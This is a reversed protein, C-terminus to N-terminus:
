LCMMRDRASSRSNFNDRSTNAVIDNYANAPNLPLIPNDPDFGNFSAAIFIGHNGGDAFEDNGSVLNRSVTNREAARGRSRVQMKAFALNNDRIVNGTIV